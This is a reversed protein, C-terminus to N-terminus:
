RLMQSSMQKLYTALGEINDPRIQSVTGTIGLAAFPWGENFIPVALCRVLLEEEQNDYAYGQNRVCRLEEMLAESSIITTSTHRIFPHRALFRRQEEETEYALLIKGVATSRLNTRRGPYIDFSPQPAGDAKNIFLAQDLDRVSVHSTLKLAAAMAELVTRSRRSLASHNLLGPSFGFAKFSLSYRRDGPDRKIYGNSELTSLLISTTSKALDLKRSIESLNRRRESDKLFELIALARRVSKSQSGVKSPFRRTIGQEINFVRPSM